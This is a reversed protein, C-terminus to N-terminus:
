ALERCCCKSSLIDQLSNGINTSFQNFDFGTGAGSRASSSGFFGSSKRRNNGAPQQQQQNGNSRSPSSPSSAEQHDPSTPASRNSSYSM